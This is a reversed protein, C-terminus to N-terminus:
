WRSPSGARCSGSRRRGGIGTVGAVAAEGIDRAVAYVYTASDSM